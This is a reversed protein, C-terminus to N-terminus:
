KGSAESLGRPVRRNVPEGGYVLPTASRKEAAKHLEWNSDPEVLEAAVQEPTQGTPVQPDIVDRQGTLVAREVPTPDIINGTGAEKAASVDSTASRDLEERGNPAEVTQAKPEAARTETKESM